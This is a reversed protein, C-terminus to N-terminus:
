SAQRYEAAAGGVGSAREREARAREEAARKPLERILVALGAAFYFQLTPFQMNPLMNVSCVVVIFGLGALLSRQARSQIKRMGRAAEVVPWLLPAYFCVFGVLGMQGFVTIWHGDQIVVDKGTEADFVRERSFGGWGFLLRESGKDALIDENDFRFELSQVRDPGLMSAASLLAKTPFVESLRAAPYSVVVLALLLLVRMQSKVSLYRMLGYAVVGYLFPAAAKALLLMVFLYAIVAPMPVGYFRRKGAKHLTIAATTCVFMFFGVVLGHGM